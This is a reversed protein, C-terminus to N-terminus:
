TDTCSAADQVAKSPCVSVKEFTINTYRLRLISSNTPYVKNIRCNIFLFPNKQPSHKSNHKSFTAGKSGSSNCQRIARSQGSVGTWDRCSETTTLEIAFFTTLSRADQQILGLAVFPTLCSFVEREASLAM